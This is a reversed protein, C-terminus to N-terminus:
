CGATNARWGSPLGGEVDVAGGRHRRALLQEVAGRGVAHQDGTVMEGERSATVQDLGRASVLVYRDFPLRREYDTRQRLFGSAAKPRGRIRPPSKKIKKPRPTMRRTSRSSELGVQPHFPPRGDSVALRHTRDPGRNAGNNPAHEPDCAIADRARVAATSRSRRSPSVPRIPRPRSSTIPRISRAPRAVRLMSAPTNSRSQDLQNENVRDQEARDKTAATTTPTVSAPNAAAPAAQTAPMAGAPQTTQAAFAPAAILTTAVLAAAFKKLM